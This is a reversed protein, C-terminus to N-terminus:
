INYNGGNVVPNPWGQLSHHCSGRTRPVQTVYSFRLSLFLLHQFYCPVAFLPPFGLSRPRPLRSRQLALRKAGSRSSDRSSRGRRKRGERGEERRRMERQEAIGTATEREVRSSNWRQGAKKNRQKEKTRKSTSREKEIERWVVGGTIQAREPGKGEERSVRRGLGGGDELVSLPSGKSQGTSKEKNSARVSGQQTPILSDRYDRLQTTSV